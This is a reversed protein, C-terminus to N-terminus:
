SNFFGIRSFTLLLLHDLYEAHALNMLDGSTNAVFYFTDESGNAWEDDMAGSDDPNGMM